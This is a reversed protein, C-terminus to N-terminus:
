ILSRELQLSMDPSKMLVNGYICRKDNFITKLKDSNEEYDMGETYLGLASEIDKIYNTSLKKDLYLLFRKGAGRNGFIFMYIGKDMEGLKEKIEVVEYDIHLSYHNDLMFKDIEKKKKLFQKPKDLKFTYEQYGM